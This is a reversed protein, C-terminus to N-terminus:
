IYRHYRLSHKMRKFRIFEEPPSSTSSGIYSRKVWLDERFQLRYLAYAKSFASSDKPRKRGAERSHIVFHNMRQMSPDVLHGDGEIDTGRFLNCNEKGILKRILKYLKPFVYRKGTRVFFNHMLFLSRYTIHDKLIFPRVDIGNFYDGGCSERFPGSVFTKQVNTTFGATLLSRIILDACQTPAIIDDGYVSVSGDVKLYERCADCIAWFILSELEFTYGNGMASFKHYTYWNGEISYHQSRSRDLLDFWDPPLLDLVLAYSITDSASKLDITCHSGDKSYKMALHRHKSQSKRLDLVPKLRERIVTGIGKQILGNMVSNIGIPRDTKATKPVFSLRDGHILNLRKNADSGSQVSEESNEIWGPCDLLIERALGYCNSTVDLASELKNLASTNNKVGYTSGPGFATTLETVNPCVGLINSIKRAATFFIAAMVPDRNLSGDLIETNTKMCQVECAIFTKMAETKPDISVDWHPYKKILGVLQADKYYSAWNTYDLPSIDVNVLTDYASENILTFIIKSLPSDVEECAVLIIRNLTDLEFAKQKNWERALESAKQKRTEFSHDTITIM